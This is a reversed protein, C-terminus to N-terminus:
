AAAMFILLFLVGAVQSVWDRTAFVVPDEHMQGRHTLLWVRTIWFLLVPCALWLLEPRAYLAVTSQERIYLALVLVAQYGAAAGLASIMALDSAEYDRGRTKGVRGRELADRVEAYRKALALSLFLFVPFALLWFTLTLELAAVGAFIRLTYLMALTIVDIAMLRKLYLSYTLTLAYYGAMVVTFLPPLFAVAIAFATALLLPFALLGSEVSLHGAAFPRLRKSKHHRDDTLDLLDNLVYVSSACLGFAIFALLTPLLLAAEDLRHSALLPVLILGNKVWQHLRIARLWHRATRAFSGGRPSGSAGPPHVIDDFCGLHAAITRVLADDPNGALAVRQGDSRAAQARALTEDHYPLVTVDITGASTWLTKMAAAVREGRLGHPLLEGELRITLRTNGGPHPLADAKSSETDM